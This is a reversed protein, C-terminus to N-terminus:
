SQGGFQVLAQTLVKLVALVVIGGLVLRIVQARTMRFSDPPWPLSIRLYATALGLIMYTPVTYTRSVTFAGAAYAIVMALICARLATYSREHEWFSGQRPLRHLGIIALSFAGTFLTGGVLGTEVFAHVFSNHAVLGVEDAYRGVGIGTIPNRSLLAIGEAWLRLRGQSTDEGDLNFDTQRGSFVALLAVLGAAALPLGRRLGLRAVVVAGLGVAFGLLGGRSYTATIAYGFLGVPTLWALSTALRAATASRAFCCLVGTTLILCLDNPDNYIGVSRLRPFLFEEGTLEDIGRQDIPRLVAWDIMGHFQLLGLTTMGAVLLVLWGLFMRLRKPSDIVAILLVYYAAVKAFEAGDELAGGIWGTGLHSLVVAVLMGFVCCFIPRNLMESPAFREAVSKASSLFCLCILILYLRTGALDPFLDEPRLLLLANLLLFLGFNM